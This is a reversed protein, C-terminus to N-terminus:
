LRSFEGVDNGPTSVRDINMIRFPFARGEFAHRGAFGIVDGQTTQQRLIDLSQYNRTTTNGTGVLSMGGIANHRDGHGGSLGGTNARSKGGAMPLRWALYWRGVNLILENTLAGVQAIESLWINDMRFSEARPPSVTAIDDQPALRLIEIKYSDLITLNKAQPEDIFAKDLATM